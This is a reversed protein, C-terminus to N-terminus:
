TKIRIDTNESTVITDYGMMVQRCGFANERHFFSETNINGYYRDM